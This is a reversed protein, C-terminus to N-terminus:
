LWELTIRQPNGIVETRFLRLLDWGLLSPLQQNDKLEAILVKGEVIRWSGDASQFAYSADIQFSVAAGGVGINGVQKEWLNRNTLQAVSLGLHRIADKPHVVTQAAGTDM